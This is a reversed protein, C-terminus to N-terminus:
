TRMANCEQPMQSGTSATADLSWHLRRHHGYHVPGVLHSAVDQVHLLHLRADHALPTIGHHAHHVDLAHVELLLNREELVGGDEDPRVAGCHRVQEEQRLHQGSGWKESSSGVGQLHM